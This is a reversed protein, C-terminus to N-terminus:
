FWQKTESAVRGRGESAFTAFEDLSSTGLFGPVRVVCLRGEGGDPTQSFGHPVMPRICASDGPALIDARKDAWALTVPDDGYNYVYEFLGHKFSTTSAGDALVDAAFGKLGPQHKTRALDALRCDPSNGSPWPRAESERAFSLAVQEEAAMSAVMLDAPRIHLTAAVKDTEGPSAPSGGAALEGARDPAVGTAVLRNVLESSVISETDMHRNLRAKYAAEASRLDGALANADDPSVRAFDDLARRVDGAFTVAIILGPNDPDRSTFSHPVFPTIYNSDGTNMEACHTEGDLSWYFNVEGIFFTQQHMLHGNNYAVDPNDPDVDDVVRLEKIWEPKFPGTRSMATDRYEYYPTLAGNRDKRDFVRSTSRSTEARMIAAGDDTDDPELWLDALSIPYFDAMARILGQAMEVDAEGAIVADVTAQPLELEVALAERTRKLDNAESLIRAGLAKKYRGNIDDTM